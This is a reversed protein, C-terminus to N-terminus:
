GFLMEIQEAMKSCHLRLLGHLLRVSLCVTFMLLLICIIGSAATMLTDSKIQKTIDRDSISYVLHSGICWIVKFLTNEDFLFLYDIRVCSLGKFINFLEVLDQRNRKEGRSDV